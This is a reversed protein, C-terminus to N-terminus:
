CCRSYRWGSGTGSGTSSCSPAPASPFMIWFWTPVPLREADIAAPSKKEVSKDTAAAPAKQDGEARPEEAGPPLGLEKPAESPPEKLGTEGAEPLTSLGTSSEGTSSESAQQEPAAVLGGAEVLGATSAEIVPATALRYSLGLVAVIFLAPLLSVVLQGLAAPKSVGAGGPKAIARWLSALVGGGLQALTRALPPLPVTRESEPLPPMLGPKWKALVIVYALYLGALM